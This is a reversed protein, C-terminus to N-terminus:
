TSGTNCNHIAYYDKLKHLFQNYFVQEQQHLPVWNYASHIGFGNSIIKINLKDRLRMKNLNVEDFDDVSLSKDDWLRKWKATEIAFFSNCLYPQWMDYLSYKHKDLFKRFYHDQLIAGMMCFQAQTSARMPNIGSYHHGWAKVAQYFRTPEWNRCFQNLHTFDLGHNGLDVNSFIEHFFQQDETSLFKKIFAECTPVGTSLEPTMCLNQPQSLLEINEILYDWVGPAIFVDEDAKVSYTFPQNVSWEIKDPYNMGANFLVISFSINELKSTYLYDHNPLTLISVHIKEKNEPKIKNLLIAFADFFERRYHLYCININM